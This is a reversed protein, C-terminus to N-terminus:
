QVPKRRVKLIKKGKMEEDPDKKMFKDVNGKQIVPHKRRMDQEKRGFLALPRRLLGKDIELIEQPSLSNTRPVTFSLVGTKFRGM